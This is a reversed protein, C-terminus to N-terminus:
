MLGKVEAFFIILGGLFGPPFLQIQGPQPFFADTAHDFFFMPNYIIIHPVTMGIMGDNPSNMGEQFRICGSNPGGHTVKIGERKLSKRVM